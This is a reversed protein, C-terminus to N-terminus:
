QSTIYQVALRYVKHGTVFCDAMSKHTKVSAFIKKMKWWKSFQTRRNILACIATRRVKRLFWVNIIRLWANRLPKELHPRRLRQAKIMAITAHFYYLGQTLVRRKMKKTVRFLWWYNLDNEWAWAHAINKGREQSCTTSTNFQQGSLFPLIARALEVNMRLNLTDIM